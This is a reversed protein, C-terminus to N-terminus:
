KVKFGGRNVDNATHSYPDFVTQPYFPSLFPIAPQLVPQIIPYARSPTLNEDTTIIANYVKPKRLLKASETLAISASLVFLFQFFFTRNNKGGNSCPNSQETFCCLKIILRICFNETSVIRLPSLHGLYNKKFDASKNTKLMLIRLFRLFKM